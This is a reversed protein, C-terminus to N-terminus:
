DHIGYGVNLLTNNRITMATGDVSIGNSARDIWDQASWGSTDETSRLSCNEVRLNENDGDLDILFGAGEGVVTLGKLTVGSSNRVLIHSLMPAEGEAAEITLGEGYTVGSISLEGHEGGLLRVIDGDGVDGGDLADQLSGWPSAESGDGGSAGPDVFYEAAAAAESVAVVSVAGMLALGAKVM